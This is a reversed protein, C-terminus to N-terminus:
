CSSNQRDGEWPRSAIGFNKGNGSIRKWPRRTRIDAEDDCGFFAFGCTCDREVELRHLYDGAWVGLPLALGAFSGEIVLRGVDCHLRRSSCLGFGSIPWSLALM